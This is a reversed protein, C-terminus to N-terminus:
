TTSSSAPRLVATKEVFHRRPRAPDPWIREGLISVVVRWRAWSRALSSSAGTKISVKKGAAAPRQRELPTEVLNDARRAVRHFLAAGQQQQGIRLTLAVAAGSGASSAVAAM